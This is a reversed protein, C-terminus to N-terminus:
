SVMKGCERSGEEHQEETRRNWNWYGKNWFEAAKHEANGNRRIRGSRHPDTRFTGTTVACSLCRIVGVADDGFYVPISGCFPCPELKETM